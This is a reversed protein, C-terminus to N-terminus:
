RADAANGAHWAEYRAWIAPLEVALHSLMQDMNVLRQRRSAPADAVVALGEKVADHFEPIGAFVRKIQQVWRGEIMRVRYDGTGPIETREFVGYDREATATLQDVIRDVEARSAGLSKAIASARQEPPDCIMLWGLVRGRDLPMGDNMHYYDAVMDVFRREGDTPPLAPAELPGHLKEYREMMAATEDVVFRFLEELEVLRRRRAQPADALVELGYKMVEHYKPWKAYTLGVARPWGDAVMWVTYDGDPDPETRGFVNAHCLQEIFYEIRDPTTALDRVIASLRQQPPDCIMLWGMLRGSDYPVGHAHEYVHGIKDIFSAEAATPGGRKRVDSGTTM